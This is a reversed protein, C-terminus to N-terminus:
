MVNNLLFNSGFRKYSLQTIKVGQCLTVHLLFCDIEDSGSLLLEYKNQCMIM